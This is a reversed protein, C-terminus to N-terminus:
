IREDGLDTSQLVSIVKGERFKDDMNISSHSHKERLEEKLRLRDINKMRKPEARLM